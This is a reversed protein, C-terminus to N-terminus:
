LVTTATEHVNCQIGTAKVRARRHPYSGEPNRRNGNKAPCAVREVACPLRTRRAASRGHRTQRNGDRLLRRRRPRNRQATRGHPAVNRRFLGRGAANRSPNEIRKK